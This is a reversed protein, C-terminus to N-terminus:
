VKRNAKLNRQALSITIKDDSAVNRKGNTSSTRSNARPRIYGNTCISSKKFSEPKKIGYFSVPEAGATEIKITGYSFIKGFLGSSISINQIKNLASAVSHTRILGVKGIVKKNTLALETTLFRIFHPFIAIFSKKAKLIIKENNTLNTEAYNSM